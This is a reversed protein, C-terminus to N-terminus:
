WSTGFKENSDLKAASNTNKRENYKPTETKTHYSKFANYVHSDDDFVRGPNDKMFQEFKNWKNREFMQLQEDSFYLKLNYIIKPKDTTYVTKVSIFYDTKSGFILFRSEDKDQEEDKDMYKDKDKDKDKDKITLFGNGLSQNIITTLDNQILEKVVSIIAPKNSNLGKPYQFRVFKPIFFYNGRDILRSGFVKVLEEEKISTNCNFNLGRFDKKWIGAISCSDVLYLWIMRYDNSLSGWWEDKWKETDTFRKPM